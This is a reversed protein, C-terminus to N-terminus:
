PVGSAEIAEIRTATALVLCPKVSAVDTATWTTPIDCKYNRLKVWEKQSKLLTERSTPDLQAARKRFSAGLRGDWSALDADACIIQEISKSAKKCDFSPQETTRAVFGRVSPTGYKSLDPLAATPSRNKEGGVNNVSTDVPDGFASLDPAASDDAAPSLPALPSRDSVKTVVRGALLEATTPFWMSDPSATIAKEAFELTVGQQQLRNKEALIIAARQDDTLGPFNPQHFGLQAKSSVTRERGSLFITTCASMCQRTVRTDLGRGKILDGIREAEKARGGVTELLVMTVKPMADLFREFEKAVGFTIGGSFKLERGERLILFAHKGMRQDGQYIQLLEELQPLGTQAFAFALRAVGIITLIKAAGGWFKKVNQYNTASRWNGVVQWIATGLVIAWILVVCCLAVAPYFNDKFDVAESIIVVAAAVFINGLFGNVWYSVPLSLEGRWHRAIYNRNKGRATATENHEYENKPDTNSPNGGFQTEADRERRADGIIRQVIQALYQKDNLVLFDRAFVDVWKDGFPRLQDAVKAIDLDYKLLANWKEVDFPKHSNPNAGASRPTQGENRPAATETGKTPSGAEAFRGRLKFTAETARVGAWVAILAFFINPAGHTTGLRAIFGTVFILISLTLLMVAAFRSSGYRLLIAFFAVLASTLLFELPDVSVPFYAPKDALIDVKIGTLFISVAAQIASLVLFVTSTSKILRQADDGNEIKGFWQSRM